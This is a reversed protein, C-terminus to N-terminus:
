MLDRAILQPIVFEMLVSGLAIGNSGYDRDVWRCEAIEAGPDSTGAIEATYVDMHIPVQEFEAVDEFSGMYSASTM